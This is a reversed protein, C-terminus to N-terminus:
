AFACSMSKLSSCKPDSNLPWTNDDARPSTLAADHVELRCQCACMQMLRVGDTSLASQTHSRCGLNVPCLCSRWHLPIKSHTSGDRLSVSINLDSPLTRSSKRFYPLVAKAVCKVTYPTVKAPTDAAKEDSDDKAKKFKCKYVPRYTAMSFWKPGWLRKILYPSREPISAAHFTKGTPTADEVSKHM